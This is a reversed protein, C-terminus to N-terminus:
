WLWRDLFPPWTFEEYGDFAPPDIARLDDALVRLEELAEDEHDDSNQLAESGSFHRGFHHLSAILLRVSSNTFRADSGSAVYFVEGTVPKVGFAHWFRPDESTTLQYFRQGDAATLQPVSGTQYAVEDVIQETLPIGIYTLVDKADAPVDWDAVSSLAARHVNGAGAWAALDEHTIMADRGATPFAPEGGDHV